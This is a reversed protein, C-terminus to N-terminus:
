FLGECGCEAIEGSLDDHCVSPKGVGRGRGVVCTMM